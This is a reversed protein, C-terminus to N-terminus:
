PSGWGRQTSTFLFESVRAGGLWLGCFLYIIKFKSIYYFFIESVRGGGVLGGM